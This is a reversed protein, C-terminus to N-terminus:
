RPHHELYFLMGFALAVAVAPVALARATRLWGASASSLFLAGVPALMVVALQFVHAAAGEDGNPGPFLYGSVVALLAILSSVVLARGSVRNIRQGQAADSQRV